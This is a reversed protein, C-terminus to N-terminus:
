SRRRHPTGNPPDDDPYGGNALLESFTRRRIEDRLLDAVVRSTLLGLEAAEEALERPLSIEIRPM